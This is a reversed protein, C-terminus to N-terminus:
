REGVGLRRELRQSERSMTYSIAWYAFAVFVLTEAHTATIFGAQAHILERARVLEVISIISLLSSDKFLSIIQGVMAPIVARLAQPLVILRTVGFPQLGVTQGAEVQGRSVAQLGGRVVEALYASSFITFMIIARTLLSLPTDTDLFFGIFISAVFLLTILPVGRFFEIYGVCLWRVVPLSSRRGIALLLSIPFALIIAAVSAVLTLHLGAWNDWGVSSTEGILWYIVRVAVVAAVVSLFQAALKFRALDKATIQRTRGSVPWVIMTGLYKSFDKASAIQLAAFSFLASTWWWSIGGTGTLVQFSVIGTLGAAFWGVKRLQRPLRMVSQRLILGLALASVTLLTPWITGTFILTVILLVLIAWYRRALGLVSHREFATGIEIARDRNSAVVTGWAIGISSALLYTQVVLRWQESRPFTGIMLLTLNQRVAEWQGSLFLFKGGRYIAYVGVVGLLITVLANYWTNFLDKRLQPVRLAALTGLGVAVTGWGFVTSPGNSSVIFLGLIATILGVIAATRTGVSHSIKQEIATTTPPSTM